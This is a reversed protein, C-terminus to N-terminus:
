LDKLPLYETCAAEGDDDHKVRFLGTGTSSKNNIPFKLLHGFATVLDRLSPFKKLSFVEVFTSASEQFIRSHQIRGDKKIFSLTFYGPQSSFRVLFTGIERGRLDESAEDASIDGVFWPEHIFDCRLPHLLCHAFSEIVCGLNSFQRTMVDDGRQFELALGFDPFRSQILISEVEHVGRKLRMLAFSGTQTSSFRVLFLGPSPPASLLLKTGEERTLFGHFWASAFVCRINQILCGFPGFGKLLDKFKTKTVGGTDAPDLVSKIDDWEQDTADHFVRNGEQVFENWEVFFGDDGDQQKRDGSVFLDWFRDAAPDQFSETGDNGEHNILDPNDNDIKPDSVSAIQPIILRPLTGPVTWLRMRPSVLTNSISDPANTPVKTGSRQRRRELFPKRREQLHLIVRLTSQVRLQIAVSEKELSKRLSLRTLIKRIVTAKTEFKSRLNLLRIHIDTIAETLTHPAMSEPFLHDDEASDRICM